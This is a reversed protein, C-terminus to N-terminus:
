SSNLWITMFTFVGEHLIGTLRSPNWNFKFKRRLKESVNEFVLNWWFGDLPLRATQEMHVSVFSNAIKNVRRVVPCFTRQQPGFKSCADGVFLFVRTVFLKFIEPTHAADSTLRSQSFCTRSGNALWVINPLSWWRWDDCCANEQASDDSAPSLPLELM